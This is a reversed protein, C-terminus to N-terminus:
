LAKRISKFYISVVGRNRLHFPNNIVAKLINWRVESWESTRSAEFADDLYGRAMILQRGFLYYFIGFLLGLDWCYRKGVQYFEKKFPKWGKGTKSKPHVTYDSWVEDVFHFDTSRAARLTLDYDMTYHLSEDLFGTKDLLDRHFFVSPQPLTPYDAQWLLLLSRLTVPTPPAFISITESNKNVLRSKGYILLAHHNYFEDVVKYLTGPSYKDDSNLWALIEGTAKQFGKNIAHSQGRDPESVWYTLWPAYKKIIDVSGDTSGGDIIIYELNPYGQQLVSRITEELYEAQNYSPTIISIKLWPTGEPLTQPFQPM